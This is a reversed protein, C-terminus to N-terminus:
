VGGFLKPEQVKVKNFQVVSDIPIQNGVARTTLSLKASLDAVDAKVVLLSARLDKFM